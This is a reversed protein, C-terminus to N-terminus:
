CPVGCFWECDLIHFLMFHVATCTMSPILHFLCPISHCSVCKSSLFLSQVATQTICGFQLVILQTGIDMTCVCAHGHVQVFCTYLHPHGTNCFSTYRYTFHIVRYLFALISTQSSSGPQLTPPISLFYQNQNCFNKIGAKIYMM